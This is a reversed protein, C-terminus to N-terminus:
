DAITDGDGFTLGIVILIPGRVGDDPLTETPSGAHTMRVIRGHEARDAVFTTVVEVEFGRDRAMRITAATLEPPRAYQHIYGHITTSPSAQLNPEPQVGHPSLLLLTAAMGVALAAHLSSRSLERVSRLATAAVPRRRRRVSAAERRLDRELRQWFVPTEPVPDPRM